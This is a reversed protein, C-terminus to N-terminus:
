ATSDERLSVPPGLVERWVIARQLEEATPRRVATADPPEARIRQDFARHDARTLPGSRAAAQALRRAVVAGATEDQSVQARAPRAVEGELSVVQPEVELSDREEVEEASGLPADAPRGLRGREAVGTPPPAPRPRTTGEAQDMAREVERLLAELRSGERQTADGAAPPRADPLAPRTRGAGEGRKRSTLANFVAWLVALLLLGGFDM